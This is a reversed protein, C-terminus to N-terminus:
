RAAFAGGRHGQHRSAGRGAGPDRGSTVGFDLPTPLMELTAARDWNPTISGDEDRVAVMKHAHMDILGPIVTRATLDLVEADHMTEGTGTEGIWAIRGERILIDRRPQPPSGSGDIITVNQLLIQRGSSSDLATSSAGAATLLSVILVSLTTLGLTLRLPSNM